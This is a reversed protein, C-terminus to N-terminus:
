QAPKIYKILFEKGQPHTKALSPLKVVVAYFSPIAAFYDKKPEVVEGIEDVDETKVRVKAGPALSIRM